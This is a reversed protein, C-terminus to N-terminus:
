MRTHTRGLFRDLQEPPDLDIKQDRLGQWVAAHGSEPGSLLLDDVYVTLLM